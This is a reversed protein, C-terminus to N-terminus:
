TLGITALLNLLLGALLFHSIISRVLVPRSQSDRALEWVEQMIAGFFQKVKERRDLPVPDVWFLSSWPYVTIQKGQELRHQSIEARLHKRHRLAIRGTLWLGALMVLATFWRQGQKRWFDTVGAVLHNTLLKLRAVRSLRPAPKAPPAWGPKGYVTRTSPQWGSTGRPLQYGPYAAKVDPYSVMRSGAHLGAQYIDRWYPSFNALREHCVAASYLSDRGARTRPFRSAVDLYIKLARAITEHEQMYSWLIQSENLARYRSGGALQSLNWYRQGAWAVPNYFLLHSSEYQYSALQYLAEAQQEDGEARAASNELAELENATQVDRMIMVPTIVPPESGYQARKPDACGFTDGPSYYCPNEGAYISYDQPAFTKVQQLTQRAEEWRNGRLYRIALAYLLENRKPSAPHQQIFASLGEPTMLTDIFYATDLKYDLAIYQELAGDLDGADELVMALTRRAGEVYRGTPYDRLLTRFSERAVDFHRRRHEAVGRTWLCESRQEATIPGRLARQAFEVAADNDGLELSAQAARLEFGVGVPLRPYRQILRKAFELTRLLERRGTLERDEQWEKDQEAYPKTDGDEYSPYTAGPDISYNYINHYAYALAAEPETELQKEVRTMEENSASHRVYNLSFAAELRANEDRKDGLLRYYEVLAGARDDKRLLLHAIWGRADNSYQGHPYDRMLKRFAALANPHSREAMVVSSASPEASPEGSKKAAAETEHASAGDVELSVKMEAVAAMFLAAERKESGRFERALAAFGRAAESFEKRSYLQAAKLYARNDNLNPDRGVLDLVPQVEETGPKGDYVRRANLYTQVLAASTGRDLATLADLRDIASNRREQRDRPQVWLNRAIRTRELYQRLVDRVLHLDSGKEAADARDWLNDLELTQKEADSYPDSTQQVDESDWAARRENMGNAMTPLPPLRGMERETQYDNFRVSHQTGMWACGLATAAVAVIVVMVNGLDRM